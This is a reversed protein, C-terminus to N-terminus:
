ADGVHHVAHRIQALARGTFRPHPFNCRPKLDSRWRCALADAEAASDTQLKKYYVSAQIGPM